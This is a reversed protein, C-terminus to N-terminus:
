RVLEDPRLFDEEGIGCQELFREVVALKRESRFDHSDSGYTFRCGCERALSYIRVYECNPIEEEPLYILCSGNLEIAIGKEKAATFAERFYSDPILAQVTNYLHYRTGPVFPHAIATFRHSLPHEVVKLFSDMLYRAHTNHDAAYEQPMVIKMHTHSHPVLIYDFLEMHEETLCLKGEHTFETECGFLTQIGCSSDAKQLEKKLQLVHAVNQPQYWASAGAVESDWLHNSFGLLKLGSGKAANLYNEVTADERACSSLNTHIHIDYTIKM